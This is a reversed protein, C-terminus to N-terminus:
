TEGDDDVYRLVLDRWHGTAGLRSLNGFHGSLTRDVFVVDEPFRIDRAQGVNAMGLDFLKQYLDQDEGFTYPPDDRFIEGFLDVYPDIVESALAVGDGKYVGLDHLLRPVDEKRGEVGVGLM